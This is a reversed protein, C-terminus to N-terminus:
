TTSAYLYLTKRSTPFNRLIIEIAQKLSQPSKGLNSRCATLESWDKSSDFDKKWTELDTYLAEVNWRDQEAIEKRSKAM